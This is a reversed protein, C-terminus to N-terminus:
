TKKQIKYLTEDVFVGTFLGLSIFSLTKLVFYKTYEQKKPQTM